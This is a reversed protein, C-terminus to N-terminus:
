VIIPQDPQGINQRPIIRVNIHIFNYPLQSANRTFSHELWSNTFILDGPKPEYYVSSHGITLEETQRIPLNLITKTPCPDYIHMQSSNEPTDLFYFGTLYTGQGHSHKEMNSTFPHHQGWLESADTYFLDMDYGQKNLVDWSIDSVYKLFPEIREDLSLFETMIGPYPDNKDKDKKLREVYENFVPRVIDLFETKTHRFVPSAFHLDVNFKDIELEM